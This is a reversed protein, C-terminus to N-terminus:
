HIAPRNQWQIATGPAAVADDALWLDAVAVLHGNSYLLPLRERMWPVVAAEQLLKKLKRTHTQGVPKIEEGGGRFRLELGAAIVADSLGSDAGPVLELMGLGAPLVIRDSSVPQAAFSANEMEDTPLVYLQDRHRRVRVGPWAVMPQADARAPVLETVIQELHVAGPSPLGLQRVVYRLVNRQREASLRRLDQLSLRDYREGLQRWDAQALESLLRASECALTASRRLRGAADPWRADLRPLIDHRLYNRDLQQDLNTPDEICTLAHTDAYTVLASRSVALLPRALWGAAFKRIDSIGALGSPGSGRMLNLLVTEAQDDEHHASLLWDGPELISRLAAYRAERAAAELGLGSASNVHVRRTMFAVDVTAAFTECHAVWDASERQLGHDVHVALLPIRHVDRSGALAHTLVTSDLGGSFAIVYRQPPGAVDQFGALRHLLTEATFTM